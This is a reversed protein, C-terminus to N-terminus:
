SQLNLTFDASSHISRKVIWTLTSPKLSKRQIESVAAQDVCIARYEEETLHVRGNAEDRRNTCSELTSMWTPHFEALLFLLTILIYECDREKGLEQLMKM